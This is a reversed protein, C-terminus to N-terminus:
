FTLKIDDAVSKRAHELDDKLNQLEDELPGTLEATQANLPYPRLILRNSIVPTDAITASPPALDDRNWNILLIVLLAAAVGTLSSLWWLRATLSSRRPQRRPAAAARVSAELRKSLGPSLEVRIQEADQKLRREFEDM